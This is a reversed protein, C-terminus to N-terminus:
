ELATYAGNVHLASGPETRADYWPPVIVHVCCVFHTVPLYVTLAPFAVECGNHTVQEDPKKLADTDTVDVAVSAHLACALHLAPCHVALAPVQLASVTHLAHLLPRNRTAAGFFLAFSTDSADAHEPICLVQECPSHVTDTPVLVLSM